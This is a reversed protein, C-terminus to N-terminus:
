WTESFDSSHAWISKGVCAYNGEVKLWSVLFNPFELSRIDLFIHFGGNTLMKDLIAFKLGNKALIPFHFKEFFRM